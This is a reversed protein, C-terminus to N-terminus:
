AKSWTILNDTTSLWSLKIWDDSRAIKSIRLEKFEDTQKGLPYFEVTWGGYNVFNPLNETLSFSNSKYVIVRPKKEFIYTGTWCITVCDIDVGCHEKINEIIKAIDSEQQLGILSYQDFENHITKGFSSIDVLVHRESKGENIFNETSEIQDLASEIWGVCKKSINIIFDDYSDYTKNSHIRKCEILINKDGNKILFDCAKNGKPVISKMDKSITIDPQDKMWGQFLLACLNQAVSDDDGKYVGRIEKRRGILTTDGICLPEFSGESVSILGILDIMLTLFDNIVAPEVNGLTFSKINEIDHLFKVSSLICNDHKGDTLIEHHLLSEYIGIISKALASFSTQTSM